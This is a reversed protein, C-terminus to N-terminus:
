VIILVFPASIFAGKTTDSLDGFLMIIHPNFFILLVLGTHIFFVM